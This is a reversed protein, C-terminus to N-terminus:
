KLLITLAFSIQIWVPRRKAHYLIAEGVMVGCLQKENLLVRSEGRIVSAGREGTCRVTISMLPERMTEQLCLVKLEVSRLSFRHHM